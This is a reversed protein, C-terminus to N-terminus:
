QTQTSVDTYEKNKYLRTKVANVPCLDSDLAAVCNNTRGMTIYVLPIFCM